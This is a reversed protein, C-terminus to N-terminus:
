DDNKETYKEIADNMAAKKRQWEKYDSMIVALSIHM